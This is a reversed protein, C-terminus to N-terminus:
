TVGGNEYVPEFLTKRTNAPFRKFIIVFFATGWLLRSLYTEKVGRGAGFRRGATVAKIEFAAAVADSAHNLNDLPVNFLAMVADGIFKNVVGNHRQIIKVLVLFYDNLMEITEEPSLFESLTTYSAIDPIVYRGFTDRIMERENLGKVMTNFQRTLRGIEDSTTIAARVKFDGQNRLFRQTPRFLILAGALKILGFLVFHTPGTM